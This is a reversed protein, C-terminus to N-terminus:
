YHLVTLPGTQARDRDQKAKRFKRIVNERMVNKEWRSAGLWYQLTVVIKNLIEGAVLLDEATASKRKLTNRALRLAKNLEGRHLFREEPRIM